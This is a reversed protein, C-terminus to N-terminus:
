LGELLEHRMGSDFRFGRSLLHNEQREQCGGLHVPNNGAFNVAENERVSEHENKMEM